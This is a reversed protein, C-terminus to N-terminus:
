RRHCGVNVPVERVKDAAVENFRCLEVGIRRNADDTPLVLEAAPGLRDGSCIL